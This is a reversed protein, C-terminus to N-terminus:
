RREAGEGEIGEGEVEGQWDAEEECRSRLRQSAILCASAAFRVAPM